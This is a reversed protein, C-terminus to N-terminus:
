RIVKRVITGQRVIYLTGATMESVRMGQLNYIEVPANWDIDADAAVEDAIGAASRPNLLECKTLTFKQGKLMLGHAKLGSLFDAVPVEGDFSPVSAVPLDYPNSYVDVYDIVQTWTWDADDAKVAVQIQAGNMEGFHLRITSKETAKVFVSAPIEIINKWGNPDGAPSLTYSADVTMDGSPTPDVPDPQDPDPEEGPNYGSFISCEVATQAIGNRGKVTYTGNPKYQSDDYSGFMDCDETGSGNGTWSWVLWGMNKEKSYDLITQWAVDNGKHKYAFEGIIVPVNLRLANDINNKVTYDSKGADDYLHMSLVTNKLKDAAAVDNGRQFMSSPWQGYGACDVVLMNRIGADRMKPIVKLYGDAWADAQNWSGFWENSINVIVTALHANLVDKMEIWFNAARELDSYNNSGTEDHTNFMAILKNRECLEILYKLEDASPKYYQKGDGLQIRIINCGIRKAAPIVTNEHGRQWCWSYNCGRMLFEKNNADLIKRGSVKFSGEQTVQSGGSAATTLTIKSITINQGKINIGGKVASLNQSTINFVYEGVSVNTYQDGIAAWDVDSIQIQMQDSLDGKGITFTIKDGAAADMFKAAAISLSRTWSKGNRESSYSGEWITTTTTAMATFASIVALLCLCIKRM